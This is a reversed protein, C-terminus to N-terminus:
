HEVSQPAHSDVMACTAPVRVAMEGREAACCAAIRGAGEEATAVEEAIESARRAM